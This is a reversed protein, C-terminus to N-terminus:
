IFYMEGNIELAIAEQAMEKKLSECLDVVQDINAQLDKDACYAFVITTEEKVLGAVPSMWYGLAPTSTSGGFCESFFKAARDVYQSNDIAQDTNTTAPVYLTIKSSLKFANKLKPNNLM